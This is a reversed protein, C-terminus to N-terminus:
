KIAVETSQKLTFTVAEGAHHVIDQKGAAAAAATGAAAGTAAGIATGGKKKTLKGIIGGVVAGGGILAVEKGTHSAKKEYITDSTIAIWNGANDQIANLAFELEAPTKLHGSEVVKTLVGTAMAGAEFLTRGNVVVPEALEASFEMGTTQVDTDISDILTIVIPTGEPLTVYTPAKPKPAETAKIKPETKKEATVVPKKVEVPEAKALEPQSPQVTTATSAMTDLSAAAGGAAADMQQDTKKSCSILLLLVTISLFASIIKSM